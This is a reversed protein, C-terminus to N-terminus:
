KTFQFNFELHPLIVYPFVTEQSKIEQVLKELEEDNGASGTFTNIAAEAFSRLSFGFM